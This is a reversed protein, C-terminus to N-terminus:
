SFTEWLFAAVILAIGIASTLRTMETTRYEPSNYRAADVAKLQQYSLKNGNLLQIPGDKAALEALSNYFRSDTADLDIAKLLMDRKTLSTGDPLQISAFQEEGTISQALYYYALASANKLELAKLFLKRQTMPTGMVDITETASITRALNYVPDSDSPNAVMARLLLDRQSLKEGNPLTQLEGPPTLLALINWMDSARPEISVAHLVLEQITKVSGDPFEKSTKGTTFLSKVLNAVPVVDLPDALMAKVYLSERTAPAGSALRISWEPRIRRALACLAFTDDVDLHVAKMCLQEENM